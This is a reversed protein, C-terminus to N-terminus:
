ETKAFVDIRPNINLLIPVLTPTEFTAALTYGLHGRFFDTFLGEQRMSAERRPFSKLVIYDPAEGGTYFNPFRVHKSRTEHPIWQTGMALQSNRV